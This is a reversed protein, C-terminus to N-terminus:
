SAVGEVERAAKRHKARYAKVAKKIASALNEGVNIVDRLDKEKDEIAAIVRGM